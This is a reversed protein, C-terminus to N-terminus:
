VKFATYEYNMLAWPAIGLTLQSVFFGVAQGPRLWYGPGQYSMSLYQGTTSSVDPGNKIVQVSAGDGIKYGMAARITTGAGLVAQSLVDASWVYWIEDSPVNTGSWSGAVNLPNFSEQVYTKRQATMWPFYDITAVASDSLYQPAKGNAKTGLFDLMGPPYRGIYLADVGRSSM